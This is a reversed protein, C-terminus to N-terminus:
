SEWNNLSVINVNSSAILWDALADTLEVDGVQPPQELVNYSKVYYEKASVTAFVTKMFEVNHRDYVTVLGTTADKRSVTTHRIQAKHSVLSERLYYESAYPEAVNIKTLTKNGSAYGIVLTSGFAM